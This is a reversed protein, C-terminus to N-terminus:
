CQEDLIAKNQYFAPITVWEGVPRNNGGSVPVEALIPYIYLFDRGQRPSARVRTDVTYKRIKM